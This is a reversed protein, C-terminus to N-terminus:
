ISNRISATAAAPVPSVPSCQRLRAVVVPRVSHLDFGNSECWVFFQRVAHYYASRTNKNRITAAFFELFRETAREGANAILAPLPIRRTPTTLQNKGVAVIENM